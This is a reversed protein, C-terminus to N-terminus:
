DFYIFIAEELICSMVEKLNDYYDSALLWNEEDSYYLIDRAVNKLIRMMSDFSHVASITNFVNFMDSYEESTGKTYFNNKVCFKILANWDTSFKVTM